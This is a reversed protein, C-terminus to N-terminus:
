FLLAALRQRDGEDRAHGRGAGGDRVCVHACVSVKYPTHGERAREWEIDRGVERERARARERCCLRGHDRLAPVGGRGCRPQV